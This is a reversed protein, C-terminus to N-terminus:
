QSRENNTGSDCFLPSSKGMYVSRTITYVLNPYLGSTISVNFLLLNHGHFPTTTSPDQLLYVFTTPHIHNLHMAHVHSIGM